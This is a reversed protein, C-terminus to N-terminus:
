EFLVFVASKSAPIRNIAKLKLGANALRPGKTSSMLSAVPKLLKINPKNVVSGNAANQKTEIEAAKKVLFSPIPRTKNKANIKNVDPIKIRDMFQSGAKYM